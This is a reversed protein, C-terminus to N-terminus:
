KKGELRCVNEGVEESQTLQTGTQSYGKEGIRDYRCGWTGCNTLLICNGVTSITLDCFRVPTLKLFFCLENM